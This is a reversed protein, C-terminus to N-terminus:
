DDSTRMYRKIIDAGKKNVINIVPKILKLPGNKNNKLVVYRQKKVFKTAIGPYCELDVETILNVSKETFESYKLGYDYFNYLM